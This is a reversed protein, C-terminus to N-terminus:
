GESGRMSMNGKQIREKGKERGREGGGLLREVGRRHDTVHAAELEAAAEVAAHVGAVGGAPVVAGGGLALGHVAVWTLGGGM